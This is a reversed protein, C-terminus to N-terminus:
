FTYKVTMGYRRPPLPVCNLLRSSNVTRLSSGPVSGSVGDSEPSCAAKNFLNTVFGSLSAGTEAIQDVNLRLNALQYGLVKQEPFQAGAFNAKVSSQWYWQATLSVQEVPLHIQDGALAYTASANMQWQPLPFPTDNLSTSGATPQLYGAPIPYTFDRYYANLYSGGWTLTLEDVPKVLFDWEFGKVSAKAANVMISQTSTGTCQGADFLAQTCPVGGPGVALSVFPLAVQSQIDRYDTYYVDFNTRLAMDGIFWDSKIGIEYDQVNEPRAVLIDANSGNLGANIGGSRYGKRTTAYVMTRDFIDYDLSVMWTPKKFTRDVSLACNALPLSVGASDQIACSTSYGPYNIGNLVYNAPNYVSNAVLANTAPTAPFRVTQSVIDASRKDVTYRAGGTFSLDPTIDYTGQAYAAYSENEGQNRILDSLTIQRGSVAQPMSNNPSYLYQANGGTASETFYFLGTTWKFQDAFASGNVTLDGTTAKYNPVAYTTQVVDYPLGRSASIGFTDFWRHGVVFHVNIDDFDKDILASVSQVHDYNVPTVAQDMTWFGAAQQRQLSNLLANYARPDTNVVGPSTQTAPTTFYPAVYRGLLDIFGQGPTGDTTTCSGPINCVSPRGVSAVTGIYYGLAHYGTGSYHSTNFDGRLVVKFTEDPSYKLSFLGALKKDGFGAKSNRAGTAPDQYINKLWGDNEVFSIAARAAITETIPVNVAGELERRGYDGITANAWGGFEAEPERTTYLIAGGAANRGVLTGQPGKLVQVTEVDFLNGALGQTRAFYVGNMYVATATDFQVGNGVGNGAFNRQGRITVNVTNQQFVDTQIYVSPAVYKLDEIVEVGKEDLDAQTFATIAIPVSQILEDRRRATVTIEEISPTAAALQTQARSEQAAASGFQSSAIITTTVSALLSTRFARSKGM